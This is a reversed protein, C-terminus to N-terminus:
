PRSGAAPQYQALLATADEYSGIGDTSGTGSLSMAAVANGLCMAAVQSHGRLAEYLLGAVFADGAGVSSKIYGSPLHLSPVVQFVGSEDLGYAGGPTHITVWRRVGLDKLLRCATEMDRVRAASDPGTLPLGTLKEAEYENITCYDAYRLSPQVIRTFRDSSESVVDLSTRWGHSQATHLTRAMVTGFQDDLQDMGKLLLAYGLHFLDPRPGSFDFDADTLLSDAGKFTFFTREGTQGITMVDTFSTVGSRQVRSLDINAYRSLERLAFDGNDDEGVYGVATVALDPDLKALAIAVNSVLGGLAREIRQIPMLSLKPPYDDIFKILDVIINGAITLRNRM